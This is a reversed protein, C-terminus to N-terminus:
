GARTLREAELAYPDLERTIYALAEKKLRFPAHGYKIWNGWEEMWTDVLWRPETNYGGEPRRNGIPFERVLRPELSVRMGSNRIPGTRDLFDTM